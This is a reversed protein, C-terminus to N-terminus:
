SKVDRGPYFTYAPTGTRNDVRYGIHDVSGVASTLVAALGNPWKSGAPPTWTYGGSGAQVFILTGERVYGTPPTNTFATSTVSATLSVYFDDAASLDLTLAGASPTASAIKKARYMPDVRTDANLPTVGNAAGRLSAALAGLTTLATAADADDLLTRSFSSLDALAFTNAGTSYILKNAAFGLALLNTLATTVAQKGALANTMTTAFNPDNGLATALENLTDLTTPSSSVLASIQAAVYAVVASQAPVRSTSNAAMTSDTDLASTNLKLALAAAQASSVPKDVDATNDVNGLGVQAATVTHPNDTRAAHTDATSQAAAADQLAQTADAQAAEVASQSAISVGIDSSDLYMVVPDPPVAPVVDALDIGASDYPVVMLYNQRHSASTRERVTYTWGTPSLDPDNTAPLLVDIRGDADLDARIRTPVVITGDVVVATTSVFEVFGTCPNGLLDLFRGTVPILSWSVPLTM